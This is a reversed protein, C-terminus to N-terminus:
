QVHIICNYYVDYLEVGNPYENVVYRSHIKECDDKDAISIIRKKKENFIM